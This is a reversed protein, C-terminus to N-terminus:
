ARRFDKFYAGVFAIAAVVFAAIGRKTYKHKYARKPNPHKVVGPFFSPLNPPTKTMYVIGVIVLVVGIVILVWAIPSIRRMSRCM